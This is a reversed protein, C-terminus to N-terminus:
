SAGESNPYKETLCPTKRLAGDLLDPRKMKPSNKESWQTAPNPTQEIGGSLASSAQHKSLLRPRLDCLGQVEKM